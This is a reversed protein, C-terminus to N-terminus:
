GKRPNVPHSGNGLELACDLPFLMIGIRELSVAMAMADKTIRGAGDAM